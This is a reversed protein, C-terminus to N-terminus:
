TKLRCKEEALVTDNEEEGEEKEEREKQSERFNQVLVNIDMSDPETQLDKDINIYDEANCNSFAPKNM